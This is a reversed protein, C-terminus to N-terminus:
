IIANSLANLSEETFPDKSALGRIGDTGFIKKKMKRKKKFELSAM